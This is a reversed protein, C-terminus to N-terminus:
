GCIQEGFFQFIKLIIITSKHMFLMSNMQYVTSLTHVGYHLTLAQHETIETSEM